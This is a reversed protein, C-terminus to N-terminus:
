AAQGYGRGQDGVAIMFQDLDLYTRGEMQFERELLLGVPQGDVRIGWVQSGEQRYAYARAMILPNSAVYRQQPEDVKLRAYARWNEPTINVLELSTM